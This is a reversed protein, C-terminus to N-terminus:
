AALLRNTEHKLTGVIHNAWEFFKILVPEVAVGTLLDADGFALTPEMEMSYRFTSNPKVEAIFLEGTQWDWVPPLQMRVVGTGYVRDVSFSVIKAGVKFPFRHKNINAAKNLCSLLDNGGTYTKSTPYAQFSNLIPRIGRPFDKLQKTFNEPSKCIPFSLREPPEEPNLAKVTAYAAQDLSSRLDKIVTVSLQRIEEPLPNRFKRKYIANGSIATQKIEVFSDSNFYKNVLDTISNINSLSRELSFRPGEFYDM